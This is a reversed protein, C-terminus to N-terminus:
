SYKEQCNLVHKYVRGIRDQLVQGQAETLFGLEAALPETHQYLSHLEQAASQAMHLDRLKRVAGRRFLCVTGLLQENYKDWTERLRYGHALGAENDLLVLTGDPSRHLNNTGRLMIRPDWQLSFLNSVLRDFNATLYDFVILDAWQAVELEGSPAAPKTIMGDLDLRRGNESEKSSAQATDKELEEHLSRLQGGEARLARPPLVMSLNHIWPTLSLLAGQTWGTVGLDAQVPGWQSSGVKSLICPPVGRVGLLRSLYYSLAEGQIQEPNIGYRVCVRSGDSLTAVRNTSRGCGRELSVINASRASEQWSLANEETFGWPLAQEIVQSWLIGEELPGVTRTTNTQYGDTRATSAHATSSYQIGTAVGSLGPAANYQIRSPLTSLGNTRSNQASLGNESNNYQIRTSQASLGPKKTTQASLGHETKNYQIRLTRASLGHRRFNGATGGHGTRNHQRRFTRAPLGLRNSNGPTLGPATINYAIRSTATSPDGGTRSSPLARSARQPLSVIPHEGRWSWIMGGLVLLLGSPLLALAAKM